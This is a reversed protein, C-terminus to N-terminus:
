GTLRRPRWRWLRRGLLWVGTVCSVVGGLMLPLVVVDWLPRKNVLAPFDFDHLGDRWWRWRRVDDDILATPIGTVPDVYVSTHASDAFAVRWVPLRLDREHTAYYFADAESRREVAAVSQPLQAVMRAVGTAEASDIGRRLAGTVADVWIRTGSRLQAVYGARGGSRMLDVAQLTDGRSTADVRAVAERVSLTPQLWAVTDGRARELVARSPSSSPGLVELMGSLTWTFVLAGFTVGAVHHWKSIGRYSSLRWEHRRRRPLLQIVGLVMGTLAIAMAAAPVLINIWLWADYHDYYLAQFYLWHPVAGFWTTWRTRTDVRAVIEGTRASVYIATQASDDFRVRYAPFDGRHENGMFYSDGRSLLAIVPAGAPFSGAARAIQAAQEPAIPSLLSGDDADVLGVGQLRTGREAYLAYVLRDNWRALRARTAPAADPANHALSARAAAFDILPRTADLALPPLADVRERTTLEPYPYYMMAIGSVFWVLMILGLTIGTWRHLVYNVRKWSM